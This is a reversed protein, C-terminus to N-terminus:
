KIPGSTNSSQYPGDSTADCFAFMISPNNVNEGSIWGVNLSHKHSSYSKELATVRKALAANQETLTNILELLDGIGLKPDPITKTGTPTGSPIKTLTLGPTKKIDGM